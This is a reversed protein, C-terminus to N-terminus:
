AKILGHNINEALLAPNEEAIRQFYSGPIKTYTSLQGGSHRNLRFDHRQGNTFGVTVKHGDSSAKLKETPVIFDRTTNRISELESALQTLSKGTKM